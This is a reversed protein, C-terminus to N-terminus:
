QAPMSGTPFIASPIYKWLETMKANLQKCIRKEFYKINELSPLPIPLCLQIEHLDRSARTNPSECKM